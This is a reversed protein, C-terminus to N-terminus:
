AAILGIPHYILIPLCDATKVCLFVQKQRTILADCSDITEIHQPTAQNIVKFDNSHCQNMKVISDSSAITALFDSLSTAKTTLYSKVQKPALLDTYLSKEKKM